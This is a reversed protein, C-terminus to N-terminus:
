SFVLCFCNDVVLSSDRIQDEDGLGAWIWVAPLAGNNLMFASEKHLTCFRVRNGNM